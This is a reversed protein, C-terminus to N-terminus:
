VPVLDNKAAKQLWRLAWRAHEALIADDERAIRELIPVFRTEGSNGMAIVANRRLGEYKARKIPSRRFAQQFEQRSMTALWELPPNVLEPRAVFDAHATPAPRKEDRMSGNWPCVDQCIDCGFVHRGMAARLEEPVAGRKEITLYSICRTADLQYPAFIAGTPCAEICRTCSGCRDQPPLPIEEPALELSTLIVGLFIWSGLPENIICTNKGIWGIGAYKALVREIVPGTDVYSWSRFEHPWEAHLKSELTRLRRLVADHYDTNQVDNKFWAYRSIWGRDPPAPDTSYPQATNYNLACVVVSRAWPAAVALSSRKLRQDDARAALYTMEGARGADIWRPFYDLEAFDGAPAVGSLDFGEACAHTAVLAPYSIEVARIILTQRDRQGFGFIGKIGKPLQLKAAPPRMGPM